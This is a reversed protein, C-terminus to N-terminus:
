KPRMFRRLKAVAAQAPTTVYWSVPMNGKEIELRGELRGEFLNLKMVDNYMGPHIVAKIRPERGANGPERHAWFINQRYWPEIRPDDWIQWRISDDCAFGHNNFLSQWYTPWQCNVHHQGPQGPCAASFLISNSHSVISSVLISSSEDALHEAVELCLALDFRRGLDFPRSLDLYKINAKSVYLHEQTVEVGDIGLVDSVGLDTAARLWTGTGCGVDLLSGPLDAGILMSLAVSAGELSHSNKSHDFNIKM